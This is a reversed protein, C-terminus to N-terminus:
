LSPTQMDHPGVRRLVSELGKGAGCYRMPAPHQRHRSRHCTSRAHFRWREAQDATRGCTAGCGLRRKDKSFGMHLPPKSGNPQPQIAMTTHLCCQTEPGSGSPGWAPVNCALTPGMHARGTIWLRRFSCGQVSLCRLFTPRMNALMADPLFKTVGRTVRPDPAVPAVLPDLQRPCPRGETCVSGQRPRGDEILIANVIRHYGM